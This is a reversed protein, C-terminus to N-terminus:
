LNLNGPYWLPTLVHLLVSSLFFSFVCKLNYTKLEDANEWFHSGRQYNSRTNSHEGGGGREPAMSGVMVSQFKSISNRYVLYVWQEWRSHEIKYSQNYFDNKVVLTKNTFILFVRPVRNARFEQFSQWKVSGFCPDLIHNLTCFYTTIKLTSGVKGRAEERYFGVLSPIRDNVGGGGGETVHLILWFITLSWMCLTTLRTGTRQSELDHVIWGWPWQMQCKRQVGPM